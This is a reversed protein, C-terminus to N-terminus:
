RKTVGACRTRATLRVDSRDHRRVRPRRATPPSNRRRSSLRCIALCARFGGSDKRRARRIVRLSPWVYGRRLTGESDRVSRARTDRVRVAPDLVPAVRLSSRLHKAAAEGPRLLRHPSPRRFAASSRRRTVRRCAPTRTSCSTSGPPCRAARSRKPSTASAPTRHATGNPSTSRPAVTTVDRQILWSAPAINSYWKWNTQNSHCDFCSRVAFARTAPSDWQPEKLGPPNTHRPRVSPQVLMLM